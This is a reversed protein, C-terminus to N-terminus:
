AGEKEDLERIAPPKGSEVLDRRQDELAQIQPEFKEKLAKIQSELPDLAAHYQDRLAKIQADLERVRGSREERDQREIPGAGPRVPARQLDPHNAAATPTASGSDRASALVV